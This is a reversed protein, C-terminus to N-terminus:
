CFCICVPASSCVSDTQRVHRALKNRTSKDQVTSFCHSPHPKAFSRASLRSWSSTKPFCCCARKLRAPKIVYAARRVFCSQLRHIDVCVIAPATPTRHSNTARPCHIIARERRRIPTRLPRQSAHTHDTLVHCRSEASPV